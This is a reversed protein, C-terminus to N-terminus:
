LDRVTCCLRVPPRDEAQKGRIRPGAFTANEASCNWAWLQGLLAVLNDQISQSRDLGEIKREVNTSTERRFDYRRVNVSIRLQKLPKGHNGRHNGCISLRGVSEPGIRNGQERYRPWILRYNLGDSGTLWFLCNVSVTLTRRAPCHRHAVSLLRALDNCLVLIRSCYDNINDPTMEQCVRM